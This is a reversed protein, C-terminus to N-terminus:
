RGWVCNAPDYGVKRDRRRLLTGVPRPGMDAYFDQFRRWRM